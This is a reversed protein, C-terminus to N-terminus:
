ACGRWGEVRRVIGAWTRLVEYRAAPILNGLTSQWLLANYARHRTKNAELWSEYFPALLDDQAPAAPKTAAKHADVQESSSTSAPPAPAAGAGAVANALVLGEEFARLADGFRLNNDAWFRQTLAEARARALRHVLEAAELRALLRQFYASHARRPVLPASFRSRPPLSLLAPSFSSSASTSAANFEHLSYPHAAGGAGPSRQSPASPASASSSEAPAFASGVLLLPRINSVPHAPGVLDAGPRPLLRARRALQRTAPASTSM